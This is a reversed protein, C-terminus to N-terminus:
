IPIAAAAVLDSLDRLGMVINQLVKNTGRLRRVSKSWDALDELDDLEWSGPSIQAM